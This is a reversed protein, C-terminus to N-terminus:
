NDDIVLLCRFTPFTKFEYEGSRSFGVSFWGCPCGDVGIFDFKPM